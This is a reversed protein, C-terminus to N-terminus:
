LSHLVCGLTSQSPKVYGLTAQKPAMALLPRHTPRTRLRLLQKPSLRSLNRTQSFNILDRLKGATSLPRPDRLCHMQPLFSNRPLLPLPWLYAAARPTLSSSAGKQSSYAGLDLNFAVRVHRGDRM